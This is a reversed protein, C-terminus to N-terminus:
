RPMLRRYCAQLTVPLPMRRTATGSNYENARGDWSSSSSEYTGRVPKDLRSYPVETRKQSSSADGFKNRRRDLHDSTKARESAGYDDRSGQPRNRSDRRPSRAAARDHWEFREDRPGQRGNARSPRGSAAPRPAQRQLGLRGAAPPPRSSAYRSTSERPERRESRLGRAIGSNKSICRVTIQCTRPGQLSNVDHLFSSPGITRGPRVIAFSLLM